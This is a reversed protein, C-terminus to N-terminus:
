NSICFYYICHTMLQLQQRGPKKKFLKDYADFKRQASKVDYRIIRALSFPASKRFFPQWDGINLQSDYFNIHKSLRSFYDLLDALKRGDVQASGALLDDIVRQRQSTGADHQFPHVLNDCCIKHDLRRM